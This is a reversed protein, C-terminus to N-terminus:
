KSRAFPNSGEVEVKAIAHGKGGKVGCDYREDGCKARLSPESHAASLPIKSNRRQPKREAQRCRRRCARMRV